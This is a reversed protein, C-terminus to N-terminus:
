AISPFYNRSVVSCFHSLQLTELRRKLWLEVVYVVKELSEEKIEDAIGIEIPIKGPNRGNPKYTAITGVPLYRLIDGIGSESDQLSRISADLSVEWSPEPRPVIRITEDFNEGYRSIKLEVSKPYFVGINYTGVIVRSVYKSDAPAVASSQYAM